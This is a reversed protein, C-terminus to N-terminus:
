NYNKVFVKNIPKYKLITKSFIIYNLVMFIFAVIIKFESLFIM